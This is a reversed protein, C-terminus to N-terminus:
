GDEEHKKENKNRGKIVFCLLLGIGSNAIFIQSIERNEFCFKKQKTKTKKNTM